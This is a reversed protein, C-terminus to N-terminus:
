HQVPMIMVVADVLGSRSGSPLELTVVGKMEDGEYRFTIPEGTRMLRAETPKATRKLVVKGKFGPPVLLFRRNEAVTFPVNCDDPWSGPSTDMLAAGSHQMWAGLESLREYAVEPLEGNPRPGVNILYNGGWARVRSFEELVSGTSRYREGSTYGWGGSNWIACMEWWGMPRKGPFEVEATSFDAKGHMRPNIVIGPQLERIREISITEPGGDFWLLDIPGYRTLLEEIQGRLYARYEEDWRREEEGTRPALNIPEHKLGYPVYNTAGQQHYRFSMRHRNYHWDPPSYYLGVKLGNARCAEVYPKVLDRGGLFNKTSFDGYASPWLAFGEHHKTTMVAYRFGAQRAARLWHDPDYKDPSFREALAFYAEPTLKFAGKDWPTDAMMGWSLDVRGDVSSLGFHIFLGLGANAFWQAEPHTTRQFTAKVPATTEIFSLIAEAAPDGPERIKGAVSGHDRGTIQKQTVAQNGVAKLAAVLYANEEARAPMDQDAYLVLLPPTQKRVHHIPAAEDALITNRDLGREERITYHTMVQGSIPILGAIASPELGHQGLYQPDLGIMLTLYAGASHGGVFVRAPDGGHEGLHARVWAFAAAADEVYAPFTAKPSLRYNAVAMGVGTQALRQAIAVTFEDDKSGATLGGGHFWLFVPFKATQKPLYLDLKCRDREYDSNGAKYIIDKLVAVNRAPRQAGVGVLLGALWFTLVWLSMAARKGAPKPRSRLSGLHEVYGISHHSPNM